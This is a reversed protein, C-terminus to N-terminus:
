RTRALAKRDLKGNGTIPLEALRRFRQPRMHQPLSEALAEQLQRDTVEANPVIYAVLMQHGARTEEVGCAAASVGPLARVAAEVEALEIRYGRLKVQHDMRGVYYLSGDPHRVAHDGSRYYRRGDVTVFRQATLEPRNLYGYTVAAGGVWMEGPELDPLPRGDEDVILVELHPLAVGIPTTGPTAAALDKPTLRCFSVHVTTETIGYMNTIVSRPALGLGDWRELDAPVIAEGGFVIHRLSPLPTPALALERTLSGFSSPVQSLVSVREHALLAKFAEADAAAASPVIVVRGGTLLPGWLEWVSFDFSFSHFATWVDDATFDFLGDCGDFLALVHGHGVVCGKPAGTSGSTYIVYATDDPVVAAVGPDTRRAVVLPGVTAVAVEDARLEGDTVVVALGCDGVIYDQRAAPYDPDVPVYGRGAALIGILASPAAARRTVRLGVLRDEPRLVSALQDAVLDALAAVQAYTSTEPGATVAPREPHLAAVARFREHLTDM